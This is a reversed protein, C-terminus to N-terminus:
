QLTAIMRLIVMSPIEVINLLRWMSGFLKPSFDSMPKWEVMVVTVLIRDKKLINSFPVSMLGDLNVAM